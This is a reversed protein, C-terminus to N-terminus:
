YDSRFMTFYANAGVYQACAAARFGEIMPLVSTPRVLYWFASHRFLTAWPVPSMSPKRKETDLLLSEDARSLHLSQLKQINLHVLSIM